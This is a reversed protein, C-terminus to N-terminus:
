ILIFTDNHVLVFSDSPTKIAVVKDCYDRFVYVGGESDVAVWGAKEQSYAFAAFNTNPNLTAVVDWAAAHRAIFSALNAISATNM